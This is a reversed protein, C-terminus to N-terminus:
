LKKGYGRIFEQATMENKGVPKLRDIALAKESTFVLLQKNKIQIDGPQGSAEVAHAHTIIVEKGAITTRSKPWEIFARIEREIREASKEWDIIGDEKTLKRSYSPKINPDQPWPTLQGGMYPLLTESLLKHSLHVLKQTLEPTTTTPTIPLREQALLPGEDLKEVILMLSVGTETDGNLIAFTIPDAGRWRPLLSFHSNIIGSPFSDIVSRPIILGYDIVIGVRSRFRTATFLSALENKSSVEYITLGEQEAVALVPFDGKHSAPKPKTIVAEIFAIKNLLKLAKAAVPGTGFFIVTDISDVVDKDLHSVDKGCFLTTKSTKKM